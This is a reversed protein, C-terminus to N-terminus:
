CCNKIRVIALNLAEIFEISADDSDKSRKFLLIDNGEPSRRAIM